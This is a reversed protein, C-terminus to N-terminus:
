PRRELVELDRTAYVHHWWEENFVTWICDRITCRELEAGMPYGVDSNPPCNQALHEPTIDALLERVVAQRESRAALVEELSPDLTPDLECIESVYDYWPGEWALSTAHFPRDEGLVARGIWAETAFTLHRLTQLFSWEDDVSERLCAEPLKRAREVTVAWRDELRGWLRLMESPDDPRLASREPWRREIEQEILPGVEVGNITLGDVEADVIKVDALTVNRLRAGTLDAGRFRAGRLKSTADFEKM